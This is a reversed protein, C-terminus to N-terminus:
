AVESLVGYESILLADVIGLHPNKSRSTARLEVQPFLRGAVEVARTKTTGGVRPGLVRKQWTQPRVLTYPIKLAALVGCIKGHGRGFNLMSSSGSTPVAYIEELYVHKIESAIELFLDAVAREDVQGELVPMVITEIENADRVVIAGTNGPDIGVIKNKYTSM